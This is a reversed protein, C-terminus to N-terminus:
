ALIIYPGSFFLRNWNASQVRYIHALSYVSQAHIIYVIDAACRIEMEKMATPRSYGYSFTEPRRM